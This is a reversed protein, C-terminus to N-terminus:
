KGQVQDTTKRIGHSRFSRITEEALQQQRLRQDESYPADCAAQIM